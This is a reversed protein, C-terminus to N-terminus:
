TRHCEPGAGSRIRAYGPRSGCLKWSAVTPRATGPGPGPREAHPRLARRRPRGEPYIARQRSRVGVRTWCRGKSRWAVALCACSSGTGDAPRWCSPRRTPQRGAITRRRSWTAPMADVENGFRRSVRRPGRAAGRHARASGSGTLSFSLVLRSTQARAEETAPIPKPPNIWVTEPPRRPTPAGHVFREPNAAYASDLVRARHALRHDVLGHHVDHPTLLALRSHHHQTNYWAFFERLFQRAHEISAFREPFHPRYKLTKFQAESFPNDDSVHPRSHSKAVDLAVLLSAVSHSAMAPGNDSHVRRHVVAAKGQERGRYGPGVRYANRDTGSEGKSM